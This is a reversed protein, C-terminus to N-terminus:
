KDEPHYPTPVYLDEGFTLKELDTVPRKVAVNLAWGGLKGPTGLGSFVWCFGPESLSRWILSYQTRGKQLAAVQEATLMGDPNLALEFRSERVAPNSFRIWNYDEASIQFYLNNRMYSRCSGVARNFEKDIPVIVKRILRLPEWDIMRADSTGYVMYIPRLGPIRWTVCIQRQNNSLRRLSTIPVSGIINQQLLWPANYRVFAIQEPTLEPANAILFTRARGVAQERYEETTRCGTMASALCLAALLSPIITLWNKKVM